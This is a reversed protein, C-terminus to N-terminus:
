MIACARDRKKMMKVLEEENINSGSGAPYVDDISVNAMDKRVYFLIYASESVVEKENTPSIINDNFCHWQGTARCKISSVYHGSGM